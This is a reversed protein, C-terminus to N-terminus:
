AKLFCFGIMCKGFPQSLFKIICCDFYPELAEDTSLIFSQDKGLAHAATEHNVFQKLQVGYLNFSLDSLHETTAM